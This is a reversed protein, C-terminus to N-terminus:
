LCPICFDIWTGLYDLRTGGNEETKYIQDFEAYSLKGFGGRERAEEEAVDLRKWKVLTNRPIAETQQPSPSSGNRARSGAATSTATPTTPPSTSSHPTNPLTAMAPKEKPAATTETNKKSTDHSIPLSNPLFQPMTPDRYEETEAEESSVPEETAPNNEGTLGAAADTVTEGSGEHDIAEEAKAEYDAGSEKAASDAVAESSDDEVQTTGDISYGSIALLEQLTQDEPNRALKGQRKDEEELNISEFLPRHKRRIERTEAVEVALDEKEKFLRDLLENFSEQMVQYLVEKGADREPYPIDLGDFRKSLGRSSTSANSRVEYDDTDEAFRVKSSSRSRPSLGPQQASKSSEAMTSSLNALVDDNQDWGDPPVAGEEEDLYFQRRRWREFLKRRANMRVRRGPPPPGPRPNLADSIPIRGTVIALIEEDNTLINLGHRRSENAPADGDEDGTDRRVLVPRNEDQTENENEDEGDSTRSLGDEDYSSSLDDGGRPEETLLPPLQHISNPRSLLLARFYRANNTGDPLYPHGLEQTFLNDSFDSEKRFLSALMTGRDVADSKDDKVAKNIADSILVEGSHNNVVKGELPRDPDGRPYADERAFFSSLPQRGAILQHVETSNMVQDDLGELIDKHMQKFLVYYARFLRLFDRRNVFGDGDIDYGDFVRKLRDKRKRYATGHLFETFGILDDHNTDYFAFMRDYLLNPANHRDGGAPVMYREFTRRDMALQLEDPDDRWETSAMFTWQEWFAELEPREFGTEKSLRIILQKPLTVVPCSEPDGPYWVPQMHRPGLRPAPIKIKYFIHTKTHLGQSECTECLDFDACNACRYRIGRIPVIGCANCQCGRHVYANRRANDESVRFLLNVINQGARQHTPFPPQANYWDDELANEEAVTEGDTLPRFRNNEDNEDGPSEDPAVSSRRSDRRQRQADHDHDQEHDPRHIDPLSRRRHRVANSRHLGGPRAPEYNQYCFYGLSAVAALSLLAFSVRERTLTTTSLDM